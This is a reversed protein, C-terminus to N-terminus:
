NSSRWIRLVFMLAERRFFIGNVLREFEDDAVLSM